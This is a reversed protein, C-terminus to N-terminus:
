YTGDYDVPSNDRRSKAVYGVLVAKGAKARGMEGLQERFEDLMAPEFMLELQVKDRAESRENAIENELKIQMATHGLADIRYLRMSFHAYSNPKGIEFVLVQERARPFDLLSNAFDVLEEGNAYIKTSGRYYGNSATIGLQIM